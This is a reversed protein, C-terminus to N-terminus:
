RIVPFVSVDNGILPRHMNQSEAYKSVYKSATILKLWTPSFCHWYCCHVKITDGRWHQEQASTPLQTITNPAARGSGNEEVIDFNVVM